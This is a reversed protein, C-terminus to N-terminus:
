LKSLINKNQHKNFDEVFKNHHDAISNGTAVGKDLADKLAKSYQNSGGISEGFEVVKGLDGAVSGLDKSFKGSRVYRSGKSAIGPLDKTVLKKLGEKTKLASLYAKASRRGRSSFVHNAVKKIGPLYKRGLNGALQLGHYATQAGKLVDSLLAPDFEAM